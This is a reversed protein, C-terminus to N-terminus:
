ELREAHGPNERNFKDILYQADKPDTFSSRELVTITRLRNRLKDTRNMQLNKRSPAFKGRELIFDERTLAKAISIPNKDYFFDQLQRPTFHTPRLNYSSYQLQAGEVSAKISETFFGDAHTPPRFLLLELHRDNEAIIDFDHFQDNIIQTTLEDYPSGNPTSPTKIQDPDVNYKVMSRKYEM